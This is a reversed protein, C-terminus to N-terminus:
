AVRRSRLGFMSWAHLGAIFGPNHCFGEGQMVGLPRQDPPGLDCQALGPCGSKRSIDKLIDIYIYIYVCM